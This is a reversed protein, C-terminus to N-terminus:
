PSKAPSVPHGPPSKERPPSAEAGVYDGQLYRIVMELDNPPLQDPGFAPTKQEEELFGYRDAATPKRIMRAIWRPSGWAFLNPADRM